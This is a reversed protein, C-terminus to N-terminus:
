KGLTFQKPTSITAGDNKPLKKRLRAIYARIAQSDSTTSSSTEPQTQTLEETLASIASNLGQHNELRAYCRGIAYLFTAYNKLSPKEAQICLSQAQNYFALATKPDEKTLYENGARYLEASLALMFAYTGSKLAPEIKTDKVSIGFIETNPNDILTNTHIQGPNLHHSRLADCHTFEFVNPEDFLPPIYGNKLEMLFFLCNVFVRNVLDPFPHLRVFEQTASIASKAREQHTSLSNQERNYTDVVAQVSEELSKPEYADKIEKKKLQSEM